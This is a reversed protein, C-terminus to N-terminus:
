SQMLCIPVINKQVLKDLIVAVLHEMCKAMNM